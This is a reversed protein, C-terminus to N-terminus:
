EAHEEHAHEEHAHEEHAHEHHHGAMAAAALAMAKGVARQMVEPLAPHIYISQSIGEGPLRFRMVNVAEQVLTSADAGIVHVGVLENSTPDVLVKVFGDHEEISSGYATDAYPTIAAVFPVGQERAQRETLGVSGIQPSGFIAHPMAHYDIAVREDPHLINQAVHAAELNASHKLLYRGVIDGLAWIGPVETQLHEDVRVFGNEDLTVGTAAVNLEDTNPTRGTAILLTDGSAEDGTTTRMRFGGVLPEVATAEANLIVRMRRAYAETLRAAIEHDEHSVLTPGHTILTVETGRSEFFHAMEAAVYGGGLIVLRRPQDPLRMVTDTTHYTVTDLGAIPPIWPRTGAAIVIMEATIQREGAQLTKPGIFRVRDKVVTIVDAHRNAEEIQAAEADIEAFTRRVIFPWDVGRLEAQLGFEGARQIQRAVDAVHVLMKSPICGRNLCTGGFPGDDIVAVRMGREAAASSVELGSGSGIVILDFTNTEM